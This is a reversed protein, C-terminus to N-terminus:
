SLGVLNIKKGAFDSDNKLANCALDIQVTMDVHMSTWYGNGVEICKVLVSDDNLGAKILDEWPTQPCSAVIGHFLAIPAVM